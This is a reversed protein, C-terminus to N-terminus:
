LDVKVLAKVEPHQCIRRPETRKFIILMLDYTLLVVPWIRRPETWKFIILMLDYTLLVVPWLKTLHRDRILWSTPMQHHQVNEFESHSHVLM